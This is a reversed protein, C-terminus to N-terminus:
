GVPKPNRFRHSANCDESHRAQKISCLQLAGDGALYAFSGQRLAGAWAAFGADDQQRLALGDANASLFAALALGHSDDRPEVRDCRAQVGNQRLQLGGAGRSARDVFPSDFDLAIVPFSDQRKKLVESVGGLYAASLTVVKRIM